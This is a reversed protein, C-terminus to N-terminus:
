KYHTHTKHAYARAIDSMIRREFWNKRRNLTSRDEVITVLCRYKSIAENVIFNEVPVTLCRTAQHRISKQLANATWHPQIYDAMQAAEDPLLEKLKV